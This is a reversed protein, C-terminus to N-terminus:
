MVSTNFYHDFRNGYKELYEEKDVAYIREQNSNIFFYDHQVDDYRNGYVKCKKRWLDQSLVKSKTELYVSDKLVSYIIEKAPIKYKKPIHSDIMYKEAHFYNWSRIINNDYFSSIKEMSLNSDYHLYMMSNNSKIAMNSFICLDAVTPNKKGYNIMYKETFEYLSNHDDGWENKALALHWPKDFIGIESFRPATDCIVGGGVGHVVLGPLNSINTTSELNILNFKNDKLYDFFLPYEIISGSTYAISIKDRPCFKIFAALIASSDVGGSWLITIHSNDNLYEQVIKKFCEDYNDEVYDPIKWPNYLHYKYPMYLTSTSDVCELVTAGDSYLGGKAIRQLRFLNIQDPFGPCAFYSFSKNGVGWGGITNGVAIGHFKLLEIFKFNYSNSTSLIGTDIEIMDKICSLNPSDLQNIEKDTIM